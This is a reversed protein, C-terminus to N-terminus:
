KVLCGIKGKIKSEELVSVEETMWSSLVINVISHLSALLEKKASMVEMGCSWGHLLVVKNYNNLVRNNKIKTDIDRLEEAIWSPLVLGTRWWSLPLLVFHRKSGMKGVVCCLFINKRKFLIGVESCSNTKNKLIVQDWLKLVGYWICCIGIEEKRSDKEHHSSWVHQPLTWAM